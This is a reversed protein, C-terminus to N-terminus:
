NATKMVHAEFVNKPSPAGPAAEKEVSIAVDFSTDPYTGMWKGAQKGEDYELSGLRTWGGKTDKRAWIVYFKSGPDIREPAPLKETEIKLETQIRASDIKATVVADSGPSSPTGKVQLVVPGGGCAVLALTLALPALFSRISM